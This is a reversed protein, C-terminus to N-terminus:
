IEYRAERSRCKSGSYLSSKILDNKANLVEYSGNLVDRFSVAFYDAVRRKEETQSRSFADDVACVQMGANKGALIGMPVDEFVLCNEYPIALDDAVKLYIDPAPKGKPVDCATRVVQIYEYLGLTKMVAEVLHIGNSTAIGTKINNKKLVKLFDLAGEKLSVEHAYKDYAMDYWDQKIEAVSKPLQFTEKFYTATETFSMGEIKRELFEPLPIGYQNLYIIDIEKWMWMSDVLTGDLDFIVAQIKDLM